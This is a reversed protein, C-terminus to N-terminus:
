KSMRKKLETYIKNHKGTQLFTEDCKINKKKM